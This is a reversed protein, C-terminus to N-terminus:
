TNNIETFKRCMKDLGFRKGLASLMELDDAKKLVGFMDPEITLIVPHKALTIMDTAAYGVKPARPLDPTLEKPPTAFDPLDNEILLSNQFAYFGTNFPLYWKEAADKITRTTDNRVDQEIIITSTADDGSLSVFTGYPDEAPFAARRIGVGLCDHGDLAAAMKPLLSTDYIATGQVVITKNCGLATFWDFISQGNAEKKKLRMLPGGTEDPHTVPQLTTGNDLFVIREDNSFFLREEQPIVRLHQIGFNDYKKMLMPIVRATTSGEPGTTIVVPPATQGTSGLLSIMVLNITLTSFDDFFDPLGYTAKTFDTLSEASVGKKLLSTKLREGEGGATFVIAFGNLADGTDNISDCHICEPFNQVRTELMSRYRNMQSLASQRKRRQEHFREPPYEANMFSIIRQQQSPTFENFAEVAALLTESSWQSM